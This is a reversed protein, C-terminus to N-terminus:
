FRTMIADMKSKLPWAILNKFVINVITIVKQVVFSITSIGIVFLENCLLLNVGQSFKYIECTIHVEIPIVFCYKINEKQILPMFNNVTDFFIGKIM